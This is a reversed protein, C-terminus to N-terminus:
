TTVKRDDVLGGFVYIKSDVTTASHLWRGEPPEGNVNPKSWTGTATGVGGLKCVYMDNLATGKAANGHASKGVGGFIYVSSNVANATHGSRPTPRQWLPVPTLPSPIPHYPHHSARSLDRPRM